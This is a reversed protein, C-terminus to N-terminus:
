IQSQSHLVKRGTYRRERYCTKCRVSWVLMRIRASHCTFVFDNRRECLQLVENNAKPSFHDRM